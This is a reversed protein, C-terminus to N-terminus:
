GVDATGLAAVPADRAERAPEASLDDTDWVMDLRATVGTLDFLRRVQRSSHVIVLRGGTQRLRADAALLVRLGACDIFSLALLDLVVVDGLAGADRLEGGALPASALDLEGVFAL